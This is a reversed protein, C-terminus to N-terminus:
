KVELSRKEKVYGLTELYARLPAASTAGKFIISNSPEYGDGSHAEFYYDDTVKPANKIDKDTLIRYHFFDNETYVTTADSDSAVLWVFLWGLIFVTAASLACWKLVKSPLTMSLTM